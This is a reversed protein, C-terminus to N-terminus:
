EEVGKGSELDEVTPVRVGYELLSAGAQIALARGCKIARVIEGCQVRDLQLGSDGYLACVPEVAALALVRAASLEGLRLRWEPTQCGISGGPVLAVLDGVAELYQRVAMAYPVGLWYGGGKAGAALRCETAIVGREFQGVVAVTVAASRYVTRREM